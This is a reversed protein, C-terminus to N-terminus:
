PRRHKTPSIYEEVYQFHALMAQKAREPNEEKIAKLVEEHRRLNNAAFHGPVLQRSLSISRRVLDVFFHFLHIYLPNGTMEAIVQHFKLDADRYRAFQSDTRFASNAEMTKLCQDLAGLSQKPPAQAAKAVAWLELVKRLEIIASTGIVKSDVIEEIPERFPQPLATCVYSGSKSRRNIYGRTELRNLADRLTTRSVGFMETMEREGPLRSGPALRGEFILAILQHSTQDSRRSNAQIAQTAKETKHGAM